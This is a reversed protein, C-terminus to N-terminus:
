SMLKLSEYYPDGSFEREAPREGGLSEIANIMEIYDLYNVNPESAARALVPIAREDGYKGLCCAYFARQDRCSAFREILLDYIREDRGATCLIDALYDKGAEGCAPLLPLAATAASEGMSRLAEAFADGLVSPTELSQIYQLYYRMPLTSDMETLLSCATLRLEEPMAEDQVLATLRQAARLGLGTLRQLLLDPVAIGQRHYALLWEILQDADDFREFFAAPSLGGCIAAPTNLYEEYIEPMREEVQDVTKCEKRHRTMWEKLFAEFGADIDICALSAAETKEM